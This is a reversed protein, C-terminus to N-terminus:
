LFIFFSASGLASGFDPYTNCFLSSFCIYMLFVLIYWFYSNLGSGLTDNGFLCTPGEKSSLGGSLFMLVPAYLGWFCNIFSVFYLFSNVVWAESVCLWVAESPRVRLTSFCRLNLWYKFYSSLFDFRPKVAGRSSKWLAFCVKFWSSLLSKM